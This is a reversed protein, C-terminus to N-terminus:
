PQARGVSSGGWKRTELLPTLTAKSHPEIYDIPPFFALANKGATSETWTSSPMPRPPRM